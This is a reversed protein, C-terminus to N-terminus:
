DAPRRSALAHAAARRKEYYQQHYEEAPHFVCAPLIETRVAAHRGSRELRDRAELALRMQEDDACIVLSRYQTKQLHTPDHHSWFFDLLEGYSVVRDSGGVVIAPRDAATAAYASPHQVVALYWLGAVYM